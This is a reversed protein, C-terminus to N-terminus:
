HLVAGYGRLFGLLQPIPLGLIATQEGEIADFLHVGLSELRYAGVSVLLDDAEALLYAELFADSFERMHLQPRAVHQWVRLGGQFCVIATVLTHTKGRLFQLQTRAAALNKPKDFWMDQCVLLQDAGIVLADPADIHAAKRSALNLATDEASAGHAIAAQKVGAEDIPAVRIEFHLGAARLAAQRAASGSALILRPAPAQLM